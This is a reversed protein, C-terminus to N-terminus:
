TVSFILTNSDGSGRRVLVTINGATAPLTVASTMRLQSRDIFTTAVPSGDWVIVDGYLFGTGNVTLTISSNVTGTNPSMSVLVVRNGYMEQKRSQSRITM